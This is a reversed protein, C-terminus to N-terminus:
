SKVSPQLDPNRSSAHQRYKAVFAEPDGFDSARERVESESWDWWAIELLGEIVAPAFRYKLVRSPVGGVIAYPPVHRTVVAGAAVVAGDGVEVGDLVMARTGIYVDNGIRVPLYEDFAATGGLRVAASARSEYLGPYSSVLSTPHRGLGIRVEPAISCFCGIEANQVRSEYGVYSYGAIAVDQLRAGACIVVGDGHTFRGGIVARPEITCRPYRWRLLLSRLLNRM